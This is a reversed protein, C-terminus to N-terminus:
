TTNSIYEWLKCFYEKDVAPIERMSIIQKKTATMDFVARTPAKSNQHPGESLMKKWHDLLHFAPHPSGRAAEQEMRLLWEQKPVTQFDVMEHLWGLMTRWTPASNDNLIHHVLFDDGASCSNMAVEVMAAAAFDVPLWDLIEDELGPLMRILKVTSLMMPWAEKTNWIGTRSDGSLQGVRFITIRGKMRELLSARQCIHEAVWKSRSYGTDSAVAPDESLREPVIDGKYSMVSAVSSCFMFQPPLPRKSQVALNLLSQLGALDSQAFSRLHLRFNVSWALHMIMTSEELLRNYTEEDFGLKAEFLTAQLVEIKVDNHLTGLPSLGRQSLAKNVREQAALPNAGRVLCYIKSVRSDSRLVDLVQAGLAGTAGTLVVVDREDRHQHSGNLIPKAEAPVFRSYDDVLRWMEEHVGGSASSESATRGQRILLLCDVINRVTGCDELVTVPLRDAGDPLLRDLRKRIQISAASDIGAGFLDTDDTFTDDNPLFQSILSLVRDHVEDDTVIEESLGDRDSYAADIQDAYKEAAMGRLITGKSSRPLPHKSYPMPFMMSRGIRAQSQGKACCREVVPAVEQLLDSDPIDSSENSLFLLVGPYPRQEGFVFAADVLSSAAVISDELSAPDFKLGTVLTLQADARSHYRWANGISVHREFLDSTAYSGDHRNRKAMHPWESGVVLESPGGDRAEFQLMDSGDPLRLYQWEKDQEYARHSSLLFGCEASGFRSVLRVDQGVLRNGLDEPLAAGGVSVLSMKKLWAIGPDAETMMQLVYPVAGFYTVPACSGGEAAHSSCELCKIINNATIPVDKSPFLWIMASSSWARFTDAPGGHYLPTTTFTAQQQGNLTPLVGVAGHHTQPIPKPTGSSTGSTHHYYAISKSDVSAAKIPREPKSRIVDFLDKGDFPQSICKLRDPHGEGAQDVAEQGTKHNRDDTILVKVNCESCLHRIGDASCEPAIILVPHGLWICALWVFLFEASSASLLGVTSGSPENELDKLLLSATVLVGDHVEKFTFIESRYTLVDKTAPVRYFGLAPLDPNQQAQQQILDPVSCFPREVSNSAAEGLTCVFYNTDM